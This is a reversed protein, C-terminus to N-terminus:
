QICRGVPLANEGSKMESAILATALGKGRGKASTGLKAITQKTPTIKAPILLDSSSIAIRGGEKPVVPSSSTNEPLDRRIQPEQEESPANHSQNLLVSAELKAVDIVQPKQKSGSISFDSSSGELFALDGAKTGSLKKIHDKFERSGENVQTEGYSLTRSRLKREKSKAVQLLRMLNNSDERHSAM